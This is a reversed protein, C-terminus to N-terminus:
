LTKLMFSFTQIYWLVDIILEPLFLVGSSIVMIALRTAADERNVLKIIEWVRYLFYLYISFFVGRVLFFTFGLGMNKAAKDVEDAGLVYIAVDRHTVDEPLEPSTAAIQSEYQEIAELAHANERAVDSLVITSAILVAAVPLNIAILGVYDFMSGKSMVRLRTSSFPNFISTENKIVASQRGVEDECGSKTLEEILRLLTLTARYCGIYVFILVITTALAAFMRPLEFSQVEITASGLIAAVSLGAVIPVPVTLLALLKKFAPTIGAKLVNTNSNQSVHPM